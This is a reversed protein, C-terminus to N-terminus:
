RLARRQPRLLVAPARPPPPRHRPGGASRRRPSPTPTVTLTSPVTENGTKVVYGVVVAIIVVVLVIVLTGWNANATSPDAPRPDRSRGSPQQPFVSM